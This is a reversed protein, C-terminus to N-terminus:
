WLSSSINHFRFSDGFVLIIQANGFFNCPAAGAKPAGYSRDDDLIVLNDGGTVNPRRPFGLVAKFVAEAEPVLEVNGVALAILQAAADMGFLIGDDVGGPSSDADQSAVHIDVAADRSLRPRYVGEGAKDALFHQDIGAKVSDDARGSVSLRFDKANLVPYLVPLFAVDDIVLLLISSIFDLRVWNV